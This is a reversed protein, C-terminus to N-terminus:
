VEVSLLKRPVIRNFNWKNRRGYCSQLWSNGKQTFRISIELPDFVDNNIITLIRIRRKTLLWKRMPFFYVYSIIKPCIVVFKRFLDEKSFIQVIFKGLYFNRHSNYHRSFSWFCTFNVLHKPSYLSRRQQAIRLMKLCIKRSAILKERLIIEDPFYNERSLFQTFQLWM